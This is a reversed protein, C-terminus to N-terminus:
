KGEEIAMQLRHFEDKILQVGMRFQLQTQALLMGERDVNVNNGDPREMLGQVEQVGPKPTESPAALLKKMEQRFDLDRTRYGPTDVNSINSTIVQHRYSQVDLFHELLQTRKTDIGSM